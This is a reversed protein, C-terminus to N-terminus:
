LGASVRAQLDGKAVVGIKSKAFVCGDDDIAKTKSGSALTPSAVSFAVLPARRVTVPLILSMVLLSMLTFVDNPARGHAAGIEPRSLDVPLITHEQHVVAPKLHAAVFAGLAAFAVFSATAAGNSEILRLFAGVDIAARSAGEERADPSRTLDIRRKRGRVERQRKCGSM